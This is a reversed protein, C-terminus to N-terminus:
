LLGADRSLKDTVTELAVQFSNLEVAEDDTLTVGFEQEIALVLNLQM